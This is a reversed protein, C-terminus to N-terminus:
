HVATRATAQGLAQDLEKPLFPKVLHEQFGAALSRACDDPSGSGSMAIAVPPRAAGLKELLSCGDGDPLGLDALLIDRPKSPLARLTGAFTEACEVEHGTRELHRRVYALTDPHNGVLFIRM